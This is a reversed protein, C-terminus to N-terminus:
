AERIDGAASRSDLAFHPMPKEKIKRGFAPQPPTSYRGDCPFMEAYFSHPDCTTSPTRNASYEMHWIGRLHEQNSIDASTAVELTDRLCTARSLKLGEGQRRATLHNYALCTGQHHATNRVTSAPNHQQAMQMYNSARQGRHRRGFVSLCQVSAQLEEHASGFCVRWHCVMKRSLFLWLCRNNGPQPEEAATSITVTGEGRKPRNARLM